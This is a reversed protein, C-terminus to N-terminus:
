ARKKSQKSQAKARKEAQYALFEEFPMRVKQKNVTKTYLTRDLEKELAVLKETLDPRIVNAQVHEGTKGLVCLACSLRSWGESYIRHPVQGAEAIAEFVDQKSWNFIPLYEDRRVGHRAKSEILPSKKARSPSEEARLGICSLVRTYGQEESYKTIFRNIPVTKLENTCFRVKMSPLRGHKRCLEWFNLEPEVVTVDCGLNNQWIWPLMEEHEMEGLDSHVIMIKSPEVGDRILKWLMAQSDKGGSHSVFIKQYKSYDIVM